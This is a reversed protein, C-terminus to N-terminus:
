AAWLLLTDSLILGFAVLVKFTRTRSLCALTSPLQEM